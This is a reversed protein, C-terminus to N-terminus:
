RSQEFFLEKVYSDNLKKFSPDRVIDGSKITQSTGVSADTQADVFKDQLLVIENLIIQMIKYFGIVYPARGQTTKNWSSAQFIPSLDQDNIKMKFIVTTELPHTIKYSCYEFFTDQIYYLPREPTKQYKIIDRYTLRKSYDEILNGITHGNKEMKIFAHGHNFSFNYLKENLQIEESTIKIGNLLDIFELELVHLSDMFAQLPSYVPTALNEITLKILNCEGDQNHKYIRDTDLRDFNRREQQKDKENLPELQKLEREKNIQDYMMEFVMDKIKADEGIFEYAINPIPSYFAHDQATGVTPIADLVLTEGKSADNPNSKLLYFHVYENTFLDKKFFDNIDLETADESNSSYVKFNNTYLEKINTNMAVFESDNKENLKFVPVISDDAFTYVRGYNEEDDKFLTILKMRPDRYIPIGSIHHQIYEHHMSSKNTQIKIDKAKFGISPLKSMLTRRISNALSVNVDQLVISGQIIQTTDVTSYLFDTLLLIM